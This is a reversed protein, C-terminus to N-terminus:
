VTTKTALYGGHSLALLVNLSDSFAPLSISPVVQIVSSGQPMSMISWILWGYSLVLIITLLLMQIKGLDTVRFNAISDGRLMDSWRADAISDNAHLDGIAQEQAKALETVRTNAREAATRAARLEAEMAVLRANAAALEEPSAEMSELSGSTMTELSQVSQKMSELSSNMDTARTIANEVRTAAVEQAQGSLNTAQKTKILGAGALSTLSIGLAVLVGQPIGISLPDYLLSESAGGTDDVAEGTLLEVLAGARQVDEDAAADTNGLIGAIENVLVTNSAILRGQLVPIVRHFALTTWASFVVVTWMLLQLRSLSIKNRSDVLVGDVRGPMFRKETRGNRVQVEKEDGTVDRGIVALLGLFVAMMLLWRLQLPVRGLLGVMMILVIAGLIYLTSRYRSLM